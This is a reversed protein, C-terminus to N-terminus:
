EEEEEGVTALIEEVTTEGSLVKYLGDQFMTIMGHRKAVKEIEATTTGKQILKRIEDNIMLVEVVATRGKYGTNNCEQCGKGVYQVLKM